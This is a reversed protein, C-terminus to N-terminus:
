IHTQKVFDKQLHLNISKQMFPLGKVYLVVAQWHILAIIELTIFPFRFGYLLLRTNTLKKRTGTLSTLLFRQNQQYDDVRMNLKKGPVEFIFDFETDLDVFPSVYFYKAIKLRFVGAVFCSQDLLYLKMEGHTNSVEAVACVPTGTGDFCLYISIPNFVYGLTKVNTLLKVKCDQGIAIGRGSIYELVHQKATKKEQRPGVVVHDRDRFNFWNSANRSFLKLNKHLTDLEDLDLYFMFINYRFSNKRPALRQHMVECRYLCSEINQIDNPM